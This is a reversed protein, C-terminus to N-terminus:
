PNMAETEKARGKNLENPGITTGAPSGNNGVMVENVWYDARKKAVKLDHKVADGHNYLDDPSLDPVLLRIAQLTFSRNRPEMYDQFSMMEKRRDGDVFGSISILKSLAFELLIDQIRCGCSGLGQKTKKASTVMNRKGPTGRVKMGLKGWGDRIYSGKNKYSHYGCMINGENTRLFHLALEQSTTAAEPLFTPDSRAM